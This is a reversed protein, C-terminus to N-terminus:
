LYIGLCNVIRADKVCANRICGDGIGAFGTCAVTISGGVAYFTNKACTSMVDTDKVVGVRILCLGPFGLFGGSHTLMDPIHVLM